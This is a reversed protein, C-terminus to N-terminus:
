VLKPHKLALRCIRAISVMLRYTCTHLLVAGSTCSSDVTRDVTWPWSSEGQGVLVAELFVAVLLIVGSPVCCYVVLGHAICAAQAGDVM